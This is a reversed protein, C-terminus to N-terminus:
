HDIPRRGGFLDHRANALVQCGAALNPEEDHQRRNM